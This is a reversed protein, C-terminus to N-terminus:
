DRRRRPEKWPFEFVAEWDTGDRRRGRGFVQDAVLRERESADLRGFIEAAVAFADFFGLLELHEAGPKM